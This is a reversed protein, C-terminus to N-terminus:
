LDTTGILTFDQEFPLAFVIRGDTSQFVYCKEHAFLRSVVIHSGQVLRVPTRASAHVVKTAVEGVWPGAANVLVRAAITERCGDQGEVDLQWHDDRRTASTVRTRPRISAGREAADLAN